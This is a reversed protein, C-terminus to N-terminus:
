RCLLHGTLTEPAIPIAHARLGIAQYVANAIAPATPVVSVEGIGRAGFPGSAEPIELIITELNPPMDLATPVLYESFRDVWNGDAKLCMNEFLAFGLGM